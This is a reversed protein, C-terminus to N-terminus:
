VCVCILRHVFLGTSMQLSFAHVIVRLHTLEPYTPWFRLTISTLEHLPYCVGRPTHIQLDSDRACVSLGSLFADIPYERKSVTDTRSVGVEEVM